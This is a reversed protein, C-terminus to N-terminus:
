LTGIVAAGVKGAATRNAEAATRRAWMKPLGLAITTAVIVLFITDFGSRTLGGASRPHM